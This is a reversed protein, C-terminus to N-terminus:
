IRERLKKELNNFVEETKEEEEKLKTYFRKIYKSGSKVYNYYTGV